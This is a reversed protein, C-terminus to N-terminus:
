DPALYILWYIAPIFLFGYKKVFGMIMVGKM